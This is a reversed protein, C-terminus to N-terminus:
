ILFSIGVLVGFIGIFFVIRGQLKKIENKSTMGVIGIIVGLIGILFGLFFYLYYQGKTWGGYNEPNKIRELRFFTLNETIEPTLENASINNNLNEGCHKCKIAEDKILEACYPCNKM